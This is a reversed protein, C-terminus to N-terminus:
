KCGVIRQYIRQYPPALRIPYWCPSFSKAMLRAFGPGFIILSESPPPSCNHIVGSPAFRQRIAYRNPPACFISAIPEIGRDAQFLRALRAIGSPPSPPPCSGTCAFRLGLGRASFPALVNSAMAASNISLFRRSPLRGDRQFLEFPEHAERPGCNARSRDAFYRRPFHQADELLNLGAAHMFGRALKAGRDAVNEAVCDGRSAGLVVRCDANRPASTVGVTMGREAM